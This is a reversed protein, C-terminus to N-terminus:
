NFFRAVVNKIQSKAAQFPNLLLSAKKSRQNQQWHFEGLGGVPATCFGKVQAGGVVGRNGIHGQLLAEPTVEANLQGHRIEIGLLNIQLGVETSDTFGHRFDLAPTHM